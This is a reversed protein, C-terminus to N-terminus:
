AKAAGTFMLIPLTLGPVAAPHKADAVPDRM